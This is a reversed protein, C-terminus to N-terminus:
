IDICVRSAKRNKKPSIFCIKNLHFYHLVSQSCKVHYLTAGFPTYTGKNPPGTIRQYVERNKEVNQIQAWFKYVATAPPETHTFTFSKITYDQQRVDFTSCNGYFGERVPAHNEDTNQLSGYMNTLWIPQKHAFLTAVLEWTVGNDISYYGEFLTGNFTPQCDSIAKFYINKGAEWNYPIYARAGSGEGSFKEVVANSGKDYLEVDSGNGDDSVSFVIRRGKNADYEM